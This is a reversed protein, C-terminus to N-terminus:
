HIKSGSPVQKDPMLLIPEGNVDAALLMGQSEMGMMKKPELNTVVIIQRGILEKPQYYKQIGALIQRKGLETGLDIELKILNESEQVKEATIVKAVRLDIKKFEEFSIM